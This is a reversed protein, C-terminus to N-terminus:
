KKEQAKKHILAFRSNMGILKIIKQTGGGGGGNWNQLGQDRDSVLDQTSEWLATTPFVCPCYLHM